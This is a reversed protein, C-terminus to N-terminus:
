YVSKKGFFQVYSGFIKCHVLVPSMHINEQRKSSWSRKGTSSKSSWKKKSSTADNLRKKLSFSREVISCMRTGNTNLNCTNMVELGFALLKQVTDALGNEFNRNTSQLLGSHRCTLRQYITFQTNKQLFHNFRINWFTAKLIHSLDFFIFLSDKIQDFSGSKLEICLLFLRTKRSPSASM